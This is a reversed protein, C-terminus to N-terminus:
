EFVRMRYANMATKGLHDLFRYNATAGVIAGFGPVLQFLKVLDIADRYEQQFEQWDLDKLSSQTAISDPWNKMTLFAKKRTNPSSFATQFIYLLFLRERFDTMDHGYIRAVDYLFKMKISLLLPFDALGWVFGGAGTGAGEAAATRKYNKLKKQVLSERDELSMGHVPERRTLFDSGRLVSQVMGRISETIITHVKEPIRENIRNQVWKGARGYLSTKSRMMAYQWDICDQRARTEYKM